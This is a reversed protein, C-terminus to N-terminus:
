GSSSPAVMDDKLVPTRNVVTHHLLKNAFLSKMQVASHYDTRQLLLKELRRDGATLIPEALKHYCLDPGDPASNVNQPVRRGLPQEASFLWVCHFDCLRTGVVIQMGALRCCLAHSSNTRWKYSLSVLLLATPSVKRSKNHCKNDKSCTCNRKKNIKKKTMYHSQSLPTM